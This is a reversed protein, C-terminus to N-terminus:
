VMPELGIEPTIRGMDASVGLGVTGDLDQPSVFAATAGIARFGMDSKTATRNSSRTMARDSAKTTVRNTSTTTSKTTTQDAATALNAALVGAALVIFLPIRKM